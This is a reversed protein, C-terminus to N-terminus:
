PLEETIILNILLQDMIFNRMQILKVSGLASMEQYNNNSKNRVM